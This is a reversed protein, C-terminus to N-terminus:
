QDLRDSTETVPSIVPRKRTGRQPLRSIYQVKPEQFAWRALGWASPCMM